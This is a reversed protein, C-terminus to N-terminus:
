LAVRFISIQIGCNWHGEGNFDNGAFLGIEPKVINSLPYTFGKEELGGIKYNITVAPITVDDFNSLVGAGLSLKDKFGETGWGIVDVSTLSMLNGDGGVLDYAVGQKVDPLGDLLDTLGAAYVNGCVLFCLAVLLVWKRM